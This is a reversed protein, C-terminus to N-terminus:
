WVMRLNIRINENSTTNTVNPDIIELSDIYNHTSTVGTIVHHYRTDCDPSDFVPTNTKEVSIDDYGLTDRSETGSIVWLRMVDKEGIMSMPIQLAKAVNTQMNILTTDNGNYRQATISLYNAPMETDGDAYNVTWSCLVRNNVACEISSCAEIACAAIVCAITHIIRM